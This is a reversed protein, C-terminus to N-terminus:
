PTSEDASSDDLKDMCVPPSVSRVLLYPHVGDYDWQEECRPKCSNCSLIFDLIQHLDITHGPFFSDLALVTPLIDTTCGM